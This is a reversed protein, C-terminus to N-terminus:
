AVIELQKGDAAPVPSDSKVQRVEGVAAYRDRRLLRVLTKGDKQISLYGESLTGDRGYTLIKDCDGEVVRDEPRPISGTVRSIVSYVCGDDTGYVNCSLSSLDANMRIYVPTSKNNKIKLDFSSGSVMADRSPSVYSVALSHPHFEEITLGSLLAANYLTTSVQCVGGGVGDVFRGDIIIKATKFGSSQTRPGVIENFSATQGPLLVTGNIRSAALRINSSRPANGNDFCTSFSALRVTGRKVDEISQGRLIPSLVAIVEGFDGNLSNQIDCLLKKGDCLVGDSGEFYTFPAGIANFVAYPEVAARAADACIAGVIEEAGNLYVRGSSFYEGRRKVGKVLEYLDDTYYFEPFCYVYVREGVRIRLRKQKLEAEKRGRVACIAANKTMGGVDVGDIVVGRPMYSGFGCIFVIASAAFALAILIFIYKKVSNKM